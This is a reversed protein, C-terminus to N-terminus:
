VRVWMTDLIPDDPDNQFPQYESDYSRVQSQNMENMLRMM